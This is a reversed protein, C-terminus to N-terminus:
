KSAQVVGTELFIQKGRSGIMFEVLKKAADPQKATKLVGAAYPTQRGIEKPLPGVLRTGLPDHLRIETVHGFGIANGSTDTALAEMATKGTPFISVKDKIRDALGLRDFLAAVYQGSSATNYIARDAALVSAKFGEVSRLDPERAGSKITVGVTVFGLVSIDEPDVRGASVLDDFEPRPIVVIDVNADGALIRQKIVPGTALEIQHPIGTKKTFLEANERLGAKPADASLILVPQKDSM